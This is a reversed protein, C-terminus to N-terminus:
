CGVDVIRMVVLHSLTLQKNVLVKNLSNENGVESPRVVCNAVVIKDPSQM